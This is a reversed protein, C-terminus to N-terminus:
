TVPWDFRFHGVHYTLWLFSLDDEWETIAQTYDRGTNRKANRVLAAITYALKQLRGATAPRGWEATYATDYVLPLREEFLFRLIYRRAESPIGHTKGVHYDFADLMGSTPWGGSVASNGMVESVLTTPWRFYLEGGEVTVKRRDWEAELAALFETDRRAREASRIGSIYRSFRLWITVFKGDAHDPLHAIQRNLVESLYVKRGASFKIGSVDIPLGFIPVYRERILALAPKRAALEAAQKTAEAAAAAIRASRLAAAEKAQVKALAKKSTEMDCDQIWDQDQQRHRLV